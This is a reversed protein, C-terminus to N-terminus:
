LAIRFLTLLKGTFQAVFRYVLARDRNLSDPDHELRRAARRCHPADVRM